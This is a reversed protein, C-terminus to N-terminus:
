GRTPCSRKNHGEVNCLSCSYSSKSNEDMENRIRKSIPRGRGRVKAYNPILTKDTWPRWYGEDPIPQFITRYSGHYEGSSYLPDVFQDVDISFARCVAMVHSCPYHFNQWKNCTCTGENLRVTHSRGVRNGSRRGQCTSVQYLGTEFDHENVEHHAAIEEIEDLTKTVKDSWKLGGLLRDRTLKRREVFYKNVRTFTAKVLAQIPLFRVGKLVGNFCESMNTTKLGYRKGGDHALSWKSPPISDLLARANANILGIKEMGLDFKRIQHQMATESFTSKLDSDKFMKNINSAHHRICYRHFAYPEEWGSGPQSMSKLIGGCRDSLVCLGRRNTVYHRICALFWSWNEYNEKEVIAFALPFLQENADVGMAILMTGSYKGYLHTGDITIIPRCYPFGKISPGFSWFVKDFQQVNPDNTPKNVFHVATGPNVEKLADLYRPLYAYSEEWDGYLDAMARQKAMWTKWYSIKFNFEKTISARLLNVKAGWDEKVLHKIANSIFEGRLNPHDLSPKRVVCSAEHPGEYSVITFVDMHINKKTARLYWSCPSPQRNCKYTVTHPRSEAIKYVQNRAVNYTTVVQRLLEKSAFDQGKSFEEGSKFPAVCSKYWSNEHGVDLVGLEIFQTNTCPQSVLDVMDDESLLLLADEEEIGNEIEDGFINGDIAVEDVHNSSLSVHWNPDEVQSLMNTFSLNPDEEIPKLEIFLDMSGAKSQCVIAWLAKLSRDNNLSVVKYGRVSPFKMKINLEFKSRDVELSEYIENKLENFSINSSVLVFTECGGKYSIDEGNVVVEGNWWCTLPYNNVEM